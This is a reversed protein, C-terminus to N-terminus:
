FLRLPGHFTIESFYSDQKQHRGQQDQPRRGTHSIAIVIIRIVAVSSPIISPGIPEDREGKKIIIPIVITVTIVTREMAM